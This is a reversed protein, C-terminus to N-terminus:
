NQTLKYDFHIAEVAALAPFLLCVDTTIAAMILKKRGTKEVAAVYKPEDWASVMSRNIIECAPYMEMLLLAANDPSLREYFTSNPQHRDSM